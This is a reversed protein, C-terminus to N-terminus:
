RHPPRGPLPSGGRGADVLAFGAAVLGRGLDVAASEQAAVVRASLRGWRDPESALAQVEAAAGEFGRLWAAGPAALSAEEPFRVGALKAVRGSALRVEGPAGFAAIRDESRRAECLPSSVPPSEPVGLTEESHAAACGALFAAAGICAVARQPVAV